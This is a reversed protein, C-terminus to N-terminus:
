MVTPTPTPEEIKPAEETKSAAAEKAQDEAVRKVLSLVNKILSRGFAADIQTLVELMGEADLIKNIEAEAIPVNGQFDHDLGLALLRPLNEEDIAAFIKATGEKMVSVGFTEKIIRCAANSFVLPRPKGDALTITAPTRPTQKEM